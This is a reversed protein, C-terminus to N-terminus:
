ARAAVVHVGLVRDLQYFSMLESVAPSPNNLALQTRARASERRVALLLQMGATDIHSVGSLDLELTEGSRALKILHPTMARVQHITFEDPVAIPPM